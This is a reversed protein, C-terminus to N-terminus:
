APEESASPKRSEDVRELGTPLRSAKSQCIGSLTPLDSDAFERDFRSHCLYWQPPPWELAAVM